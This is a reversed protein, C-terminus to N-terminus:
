LFEGRGHSWRRQWSTCIFVNADWTKRGAVRKVKNGSCGGIERDSLRPGGKYSKLVRRMNNHQQPVPAIARSQNKVQGCWVAVESKNQERRYM